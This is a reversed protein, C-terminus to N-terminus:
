RKMEELYKELKRQTKALVDEFEFVRKKIFDRRGSKIKLVDVPKGEGSTFDFRMKGKYHKRLDKNLLEYLELIENGLEYQQVVKEVLEKNGTEEKVLKCDLGRFKTTEESDSTQSLYKLLKM